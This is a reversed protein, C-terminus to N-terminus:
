TVSAEHSSSTTSVIEVKPNGGVMKLSSEHVPCKIRRKVTKHRGLVGVCEESKISGTNLDIIGYPSPGAKFPPTGLKTSIPLATAAM